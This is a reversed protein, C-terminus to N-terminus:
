VYETKRRLFFIDFIVQVVLDYRFGINLSEPVIEKYEIEEHSKRMQVEKRIIKLLEGTTENSIEYADLLNKMNENLNNHDCFGFCLQALEKQETCLDKKQEDDLSFSSDIIIWDKGVGPVYFQAKNLIDM